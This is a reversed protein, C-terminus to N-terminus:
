LLAIFPHRFVIFINRQCSFTPKRNKAENKVNCEESYLKIESFYNEYLEVRLIIIPLDVHDEGLLIIFYYELKRGVSMIHSNSISNFVSISLDLKLM